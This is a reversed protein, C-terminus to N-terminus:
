RAIPSPSRRVPIWGDEFRTRLILNVVEGYSRIGEEVRNARLYQDYVLWSANRVLPFQGRRLREVIAEVDRRSGPALAEALRMRDRPSVESAIQWYLYLWGSYQAPADGRVCTLWGVFNAEAEHAYGALHAWEHAAVFPREWPLLDPNALVELAFPDVMGDVSAWRFYQGFMTWKLRGPRALPADGLARQTKAFAATLPENRWEASNWGVGHADAHLRNMHTISQLGLATVAADDPADRSIVLREGMPLRRYNFGWLLLFALYVAAAGALVHGLASLLPRVHHIRRAERAARVLIWSLGLCAGCVLLDFLAFPAANSVPTILRQQFPYWRSSYWEEVLVDSMPMWACGLAVLVLALEITVRRKV